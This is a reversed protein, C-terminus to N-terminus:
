WVVLTVCGLQVPVSAESSPDRGSRVRHIVKDPQEDTGKDYGKIICYIPLRLIEGLETLQDLLYDVRLLPPEPFRQNTAM